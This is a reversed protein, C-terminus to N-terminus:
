PDRLFAGRLFGRRSLAQEALPADSFRAQDWQAKERKVAAELDELLLQELAARATAVADEQSAFEFVPSFLSCAQYSGLGPEEGGMFDYQGSPFRWRRTEGLGLAAYDPNDAPLLMLNITWPTILIGLWLGEWLRFGVAEVHLSPNLIPLGAMRHRAIGDFVSEIMRSPNELPRPNM